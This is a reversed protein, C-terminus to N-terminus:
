PEGPHGGPLCGGLPPVGGPHRAEGPPAEGPRPPGMKLKGAYQALKVPQKTTPADLVLLAVDNSMQLAAPLCAWSRYGTGALRGRAQFRGSIRRPAGM